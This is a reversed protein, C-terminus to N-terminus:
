VLLNGERGKILQCRAMGTKQTSSGLLFCSVV